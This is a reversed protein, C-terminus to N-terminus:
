LSLGNVYNRLDDEATALEGASTAIRGSLTEVAEETASLKEITRKRLGSDKGLPAIIDRLRKEDAVLQDRRQKLRDLETRRQAVTQRRAAVQGLAQRLAPTLESGGVLATLRDDGLDTLGISEELPHDETVALEGNGKADLAVPIRYTDATAEVTKPDPAALTWDARRPHEVVLRSAVATAGAATSVEYKTTQRVLRTVRMVGQSITAKVVYRRETSGRDIAVKNDVAYGLLRKEGTPFTALRADGVYSEGHGAIDEYLTLAGPPLGSEGTNTLAIAALPHQPETHPQYLDLRGGPLERDVIPVVLSRGAEASIKNPLTFAIQTADEATQAAEIQAAPPAAGGAMPPTPPSPAPAALAPMPAPGMPPPPPSAASRAQALRRAGTDPPPLVRSGTEIPVEPRQVYYSDFLAQRFTVPNGSLLTLEVDHWPQGSFNELVAWGQLRAKDAQPDAALLLRYSAKWVPVAVVYGVRIARRAGGHTTLTLRRQRSARYEAVRALATAVKKQLEPDTFGISDIDQLLASQLGAETLVTVRTREAPLNNVILSERDAHVLKGALPKEGSIRIDAGQLANLLDMASGLASADFPLDAFSEELPQRGPLTIEGATGSQDYVVLSKLVDDIQDLPLDLTLAADGSVTAEYEFYGVGGSSLMVRKLALEAAAAPTGAALLFLIALGGRRVRDM